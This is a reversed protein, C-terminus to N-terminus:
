WNQFVIILLINALPISESASTKHLQPKSPLCAASLCLLALVQNNAQLVISAITSSKLDKERAEHM